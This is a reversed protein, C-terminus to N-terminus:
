HQSFKLAEAVWGSLEEDVEEADALIIHNAWRGSNILAAEAVRPSQLPHSLWLTVILYHDPRGKIKRPPLWAAAFIRKDIFSIQSKRVDVRMQPVVASISDTLREYIPLVAPMAEFFVQENKDM